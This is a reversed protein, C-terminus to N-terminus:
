RARTKDSASDAKYVHAKSFVVKDVVVDKVPALRAQLKEIQEQPVDMEVLTEMLKELFVDAAEDTIARGTHAEYMSKGPYAEEKGQLAYQLYKEFRQKLSTLDTNKFYLRLLPDQTAKDYFKHVAALLLQEGASNPTTPMKEGGPSATGGDSQWRPPV